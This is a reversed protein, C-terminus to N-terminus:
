NTDEIQTHPLRSRLVACQERSIPPEASGPVNYLRLETLGRMEAAKAIHSESMEEALCLYLQRLSPIRVLHDFVGGGIGPCAARSGDAAVIRPWGPMRRWAARHEPLVAGQDVPERLASFADDSMPAYVRVVTLSPLTALQETAASKLASSGFFQFTELARCNRLGGGGEATLQCEYLRLARLRNRSGLKKTDINVWEFAASELTPLQGLEVDGFSPSTISIERLASLKALTRMTNERWVHLDLTHDEPHQIWVSVVVRAGDPGSKETVFELGHPRPYDACDVGFEIPILIADGPRGGLSVVLDVCLREEDSLPGLDDITEEFLALEGPAGIRGASPASSLREYALRACGLAAIALGVRLVWQLRQFSRVRDTM